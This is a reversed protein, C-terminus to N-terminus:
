NRILPIRGAGARYFPMECISLQTEVQFQVILSICSEGSAAATHLRIGGSSCAASRACPNQVRQRASRGKVKTSASIRPLSSASMPFHESQPALTTRSTSGGAYRVKLAREYERTMWNHVRAGRASIGYEVGSGGPKM